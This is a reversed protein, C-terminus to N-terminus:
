ERDYLWGSVAGRVQHLIVVYWIFLGLTVLFALGGCVIMGVGAAMLTGSANGAASSASSSSAAQFMGFWTGCILLGWMIFFLVFAIPVAIMYYVIQRALDDKRMSVATGRLFFLRCYFEGWYLAGSLALASFGVAGVNNYGSGLTLFLQGYGLCFGGYWTLVGAAGLAFTAIALGRLYTARRTPVVGMCFGEGAVRLGQETLMLLGVLGYLVLLGVGLAAFTGFVSGGTSSASSSPASSAISFVSAAAFAWIMILGVFYIVIAAIYAWIGFIMLNLGLRVRQWGQVPDGEERYRRRPRDDDEYEDDEDDRRRRSRRPRDDEYEDDDRRSLRRGASSDQRTSSYSSRAPAEDPEEEPAAEGVFKVGCGPCKVKKGLLDDPVRLTRGCDPCSILQPM